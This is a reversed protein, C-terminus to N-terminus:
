SARAEKKAIQIQRNWEIFKEVGARPIYMRDNRIQVEGCAGTLILDRARQYKYTKEGHAAADKSLLLAVESITMHTAEFNQSRTKKPKQKPPM